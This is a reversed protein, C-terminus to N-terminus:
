KKGTPCCRRVPLCGMRWRLLNLADRTGSVLRAERGEGEGREGRVKAEFFEKAGYVGVEEVNIETLVALRKLSEETLEGARAKRYIMLFQFSFM